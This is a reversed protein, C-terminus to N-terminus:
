SVKLVGKVQRYCGSCLRYSAIMLKLDFRDLRVCYLQLKGGANKNEM